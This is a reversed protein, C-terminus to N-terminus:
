NGLALSMFWVILTLALSQLIDELIRSAFSMDKLSSCETVAFWRHM